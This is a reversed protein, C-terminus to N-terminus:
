SYWYVIIIYWYLGVWGDMDEEGEKSKKEPQGHDDPSSKRKGTAM